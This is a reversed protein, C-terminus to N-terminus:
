LDFKSVVSYSTHICAKRNYHEGSQRIHLMFIGTFGEGVLVVAGTQWTCLRTTCRWCTFREWNTRSTALRRNGSNNSKFITRPTWCGVVLGESNDCVQMNPIQFLWRHLEPYWMFVACQMLHMQLKPELIHMRMEVFVVAMVFYDHSLMRVMWANRVDLIGYGNLVLSVNLHCKQSRIAERILEQPHATFLGAYKPRRHDTNTM